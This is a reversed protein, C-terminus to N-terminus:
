GGYLDHNVQASYFSDITSPANFLVALMYKKINENANEIPGVNIDSAYACSVKGNQLLFIPLYAHDTGIDALVAGQRVLEACACLRGAIQM